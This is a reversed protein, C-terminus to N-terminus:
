SKILNILYNYDFQLLAIYLEAKIRLEKLSREVISQLLKISIARSIPESAALCTSRTMAFAFESSYELRSLRFTSVHLMFTLVSTKKGQYIVSFLRLMSIILNNSLGLKILHEVSVVMRFVVTRVKATVVLAFLLVITFIGSVHAILDITELDGYVDIYINQLKLLDCFFM